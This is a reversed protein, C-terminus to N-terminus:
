RPQLDSNEMEKSKGAENILTHQTGFFGPSGLELSQPPSLVGCASQLFSLCTLVPLLISYRPCSSLVAQLQCLRTVASALMAPFWPHSTM